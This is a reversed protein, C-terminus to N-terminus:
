GITFSKRKPKTPLALLEDYENGTPPSSTSGGAVAANAIFRGPIGPSEM